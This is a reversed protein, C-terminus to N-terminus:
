GLRTRGLRTTETPDTQISNMQTLNKKETESQHLEAWECLDSMRPARGTSESRQERGRFDTHHQISMRAPAYTYFFVFDETGHKM